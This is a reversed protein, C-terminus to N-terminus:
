RKRFILYKRIRLYSEGLFFKIMKKLQDECKWFVKKFINPYLVKHINKISVQSNISNRPLSKQSEKSILGHDSIYVFAYGLKNALNVALNNYFGYPFAFSSIKIGLEQEIKNKSSILEDCIQTFNLEKFNPHTKSHSGIEMGSKHLIRIDNWNMYGEKGVYETVIFFIAKAEYKLLLPLAYIIDSKFGDDFTIIFKCNTIDSSLGTLGKTLNLIKEFLEVKIEEFSTISNESLGHLVIANKKDIM